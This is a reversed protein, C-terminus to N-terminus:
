NPGEVMQGLEQITFELLKIIQLKTCTYPTSHRELLEFELNTFPSLSLLFTEIFPTGFKLNTFSSVSLPLAETFFTRDLEVRFKDPVSHWQIDSLESQRDTQMYITERTRVKQMEHLIHLFRNKATMEPIIFQYIM